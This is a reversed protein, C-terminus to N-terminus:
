VMLSAGSVAARVFYGDSFGSKIVDIYDATDDVVLITQKM